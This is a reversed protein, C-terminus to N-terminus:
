DRNRDRDRESPGDPGRGRRRGDELRDAFADRGAADMRELRDLVANELRQAERAAGSRQDVLMEAVAARDFPEARILATLRDMRARREERDPRDRGARLAAMTEGRIEDPLAGVLALPGGPGPGRGTFPPGGRSLAAGAVLGVVALNLALSVALVVTMWRPVRPRRDAM